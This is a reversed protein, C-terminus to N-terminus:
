DPTQRWASLFANAEASGSVMRLTIIFTNLRELPPLTRGQEIILYNRYSMKFVRAGGNNHYFQYATAFGADKRLQVLAKSFITTM